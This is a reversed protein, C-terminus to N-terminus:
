KLHLKWVDVLVFGGFGAGVLWVWDMLSLSVFGFL